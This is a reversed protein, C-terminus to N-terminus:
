DVLLHTQFDKNVFVYVSFVSGHDYSLVTTLILWVELQTSKLEGYTACPDLYILLKTTIKRSVSNYIHLKTHNTPWKTNIHMFYNDIGCQYIYGNCVYLVRVVTLSFHLVFIKLKGSVNWHVRIRTFHYCVWTHKMCQYDCAIILMPGTEPLPRANFMHCTM